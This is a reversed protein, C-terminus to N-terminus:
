LENIIKKFEDGRHEANRFLNFSAAGPSFVLSNNKTKLQMAKRVASKLGAEKKYNRYKRKKLERVLKVSATGPLLVTPIKNRKIIGALGSYSLGKVVGGTILVLKGSISRIANVTAMQV